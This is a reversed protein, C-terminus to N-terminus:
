ARKRAVSFREFLQTFLAKHKVGRRNKKFLKEHSKWKTVLSRNINYKRAADTHRMGNNDDLVNAKYDNSYSLRKKKEPVSDNGEITKILSKVVVVVDSSIDNNQKQKSDTFTIKTHHNPKSGKKQQPSCWAVHMSLAQKTKLLKKCSTCEFGVPKEINGGSGM